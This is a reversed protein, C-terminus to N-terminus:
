MTGGMDKLLWRVHEPNLASDLRSRVTPLTSSKYKILLQRALSSAENDTADYYLAVDLVAEIDEEATLPEMKHMLKVMSQDNETSDIPEGGTSLYSNLRARLRDADSCSSLVIAVIGVIMVIGIHRHTM